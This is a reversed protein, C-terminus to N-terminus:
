KVEEECFTYGCIELVIQKGRDRIEVCTWKQGSVEHTADTATCYAPIGLYEFNFMPRVNSYQVKSYLWHDSYGTFKHKKASRMMWSKWENYSRLNATEAVYKAQEKIAEDSFPAKKQAVTGDYGDKHEVTEEFLLKNRGDVIRLVMGSRMPGSAEYGCRWKISTLWRVNEKDCRQRVYVRGNEHCRYLDEAGQEGIFHVTRVNDETM